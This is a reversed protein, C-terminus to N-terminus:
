LSGLSGTLLLVTKTGPHAGFAPAGSEGPAPLSAPLAEKGFPDFHGERPVRFGLLSRETTVAWQPSAGGESRAM